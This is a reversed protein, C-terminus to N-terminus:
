LGFKVGVVSVGMVCVCPKAKLVCVANEQHADGVGAAALSFVLNRVGGGGCV